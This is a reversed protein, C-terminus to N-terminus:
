QINKQCLSCILEKYIDVLFAKVEKAFKEQLDALKRRYGAHQQQLLKNEKM